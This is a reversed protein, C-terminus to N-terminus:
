TGDGRDLRGSLALWFRWAYRAVVALAFVVYISFLWDMPIRLLSTREIAMFSVYDWVRPLSVAFLAALALAAVGAYVRRLRAGAALYLIDFRVHDADRVLFAGGWFVTWLWTVLCAELTWGLPQGVVYRFVVQVIFAAFMASLLLVAVDEARRRLFTAVSRPLRSGGGERTM